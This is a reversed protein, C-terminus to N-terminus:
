TQLFISNNSKFMFCQVLHFVGKFSRVKLDFGKGSFSKRKLALCYFCCHFYIQIIIVEHNTICGSLM